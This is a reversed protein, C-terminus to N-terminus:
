TSDEAAVDAKAAESAMTAHTSTSFLHQESVSKAAVCTRSSVLVPQQAQYLPSVALGRVAVTATRATSGSLLQTDQLSAVLRRSLSRFM